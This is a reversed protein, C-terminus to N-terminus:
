DKAYKKRRDIEDFNFTFQVEEYGLPYDRRLPHGEWDHPMLIRRLDSHGLFDIGFMDYVEREHWNANAYVPEISPVKPEDGNLRVSLGILTNQQTSYLQYLVEFRPEAPWHDTATLAILFDYGRRKLFECAAVIAEIQIVATLQGRFEISDVVGDELKERLATLASEAKSL